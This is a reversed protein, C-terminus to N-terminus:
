INFFHILSFHTSEFDIHLYLVDVIIREKETQRSYNMPFSFIIVLIFLLKNLMSKKKDNAPFIDIDLDIIIDDQM